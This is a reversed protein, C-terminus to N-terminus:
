AFEPARSANRVCRRLMDSVQGSVDTIAIRSKVAEIGLEEVLRVISANIFSSPVGDVGDFSVTVRSALALARHLVLYLADGDASTDCHAVHDLVAIVM